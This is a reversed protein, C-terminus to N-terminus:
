IPPHGSSDEAAFREALAPSNLMVQAMIVQELHAGLRIFRDPEDYKGAHISEALADNRTKLAAELDSPSAPQSLNEGLLTNLSEWETHLLNYGHGVERGAIKLLNIAVLTQFYLKPEARIAPILQTELHLRVADLLQELSPKSSM